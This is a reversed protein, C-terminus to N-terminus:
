AYASMGTSPVCGKSCCISASNSAGGVHIRRREGCFFPTRLRAFGPRPAYAREGDDGRQYPLEVNIRRKDERFRPHGGTEAQRVTFGARTLWSVLVYRKTPNDDVVLVTAANM